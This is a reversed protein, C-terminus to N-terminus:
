QVQLYQQLKLSILLHLNSLKLNLESYSFLLLQDKIVRQNQLFLYLEKVICRNPIKFLNVDNKLIQNSKCIIILHNGIPSEITNKKKIIAIIPHIKGRHKSIINKIMHKSLSIVVRLEQNKDTSNCHNERMRM